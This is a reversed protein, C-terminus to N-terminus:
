KEQEKRIAALTKGKYSFYIPGQYSGSKNKKPLYKATFGSLSWLSNEYKISSDSFIEVEINLPDFTIIDGTKLGIMSFKFRPKPNRKNKKAKGTIIKQDEKENKSIEPKGDIYIAMEADDFLEALDRIFGLAIEPKIKFFERNPRFRLSRSTRRHTSNYLKEFNKIQKHIQKEAEEYKCTKLTAFIKFPLPVATNDLEKSRVDVPRASKGIKICDDKYSPNTLIYVYGKQNKETNASKNKESDM